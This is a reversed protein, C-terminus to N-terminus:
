AEDGRGFAAAESAKTSAESSPPQAADDDTWWTDPCTSYNPHGCMCQDPVGHNWPEGHSGDFEEGKYFGTPAVHGTGDCYQRHWTTLEVTPASPEAGGPAGLPREIM